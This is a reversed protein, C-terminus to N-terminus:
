SDLEPGDLYESLETETRNFIAYMDSTKEVAIVNMVFAYMSAEGAYFIARINKVEQESTEPPVMANKFSEWRDDITTKANPTFTTISM